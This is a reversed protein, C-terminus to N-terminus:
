IYDYQTHSNRMKVAANKHACKSLDTDYKTFLEEFFYCSQTNEDSCCTYDCTLISKEIRHQERKVPQIKIM